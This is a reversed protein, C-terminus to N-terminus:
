PRRWGSVTKGRDQVRCKVWGEASMLGALRRAHGNHQDKRAVGVGKELIVYTAIAKQHVTAEGYLYERMGGSWPDDEKWHESDAQQMEAEAPTLYWQYGSEYLCVAEAWLQDRDRRLGELDIDGIARVWYRREGTPDKLFSTSNTTGALVCSRPMAEVNHGYPRRFKDVQATIFSKVEASEVKNLRDIEGWEYLWVGQLQLYADKDRINIATDSFWEPSALVQLATSKGAGQQGQLILVNDVKCGPDMARAVAAVMWRVGYATTLLEDAAQMYEHLWGGLREVGDWKLSRLYDQVPHRAKTRAIAEVAQQAMLANPRVLYVEDLWNRLNTIWVDSLTAYGGTARNRVMVQHKFLDYYIAGSLRSDMELVSMTNRLSTRPHEDDKGKNVLDLYGWVEYQPRAQVSPMPHVSM